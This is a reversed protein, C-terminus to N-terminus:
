ALVGRDEFAAGVERALAESGGDSGEILYWFDQSRIENELHSPMTGATFLALLDSLHLEELRDVHCTVDRGDVTRFTITEDAAPRGNPKEQDFFVDRQETVEEPAFIRTLGFRLSDGRIVHLRRRADEERVGLDSGKKAHKELESERSYLALRIEGIQDYDLIDRVADQLKSLPGKEEPPADTTTEEAQTEEDASEGATTEPEAAATENAKKKAM